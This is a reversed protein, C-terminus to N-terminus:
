KENNGMDGGMYSQVIALCTHRTYLRVQTVDIVRSVLEIDEHTLVFLENLTVVLGFLSKALSNGLVRGDAEVSHSPPFRPRVELTLDAM